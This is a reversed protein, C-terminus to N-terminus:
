KSLPKLAAYVTKLDSASDGGINMRAAAPHSRDVPLYTATWLWRGGDHLPEFHATGLLPSDADFSRRFSTYDPPVDGLDSASVALFMGHHGPGEFHLTYAKASRQQDFGKLLYSPPLSAPLVIPIGLARLESLQKDNLYAFDRALSRTPVAAIAIAVVAAALAVLPRKM